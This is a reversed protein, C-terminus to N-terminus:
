KLNREFNNYQNKKKSDTIKKYIQMYIAGLSFDCMKQSLEFNKEEFDLIVIFPNIYKYENNNYFIEKIFKDFNKEIINYNNNVECGNKIIEAKLIATGNNSHFKSENIDKLVEKEEMKDLNNDVLFLGWKEKIDM